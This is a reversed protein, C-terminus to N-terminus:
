NSVNKVMQERDENEACLELIDGPSAYSKFIIKGIELM